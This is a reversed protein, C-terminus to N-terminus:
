PLIGKQLKSVIQHPIPYNRAPRISHTCYLSGRRTSIPHTSTRTTSCSIQFAFFGERLRPSETPVQLQPRDSLKPSRLNRKATWGPSSTTWAAMTVLPQAAQKPEPIESVMAETTLLLGAISGANQLAIHTVMTPGLAALPHILKAPKQQHTGAEFFEV